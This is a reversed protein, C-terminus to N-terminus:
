DLIAAASHAGTDEPLEIQSRDSPTLGFRGAYTAIIAAQDRLVQMAPNKVIRNKDGPVLVNSKAVLRMAERHHHISVCLVAFADVDWATLVGRAILSPALRDWVQRAEAPLDDPPVVGAVSAPPKPESRNM